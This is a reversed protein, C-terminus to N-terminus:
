GGRSCRESGSCVARGGRRGRGGGIDGVGARDRFDSILMPESLVVKSEALGGQGVVVPNSLQVFGREAKPENRAGGVDGVGGEVFNKGEEEAANTGICSGQPAACCLANRTEGRIKGPQEGVERGRRAGNSNQSRLM